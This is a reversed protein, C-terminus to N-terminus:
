PGLKLISLGPVGPCIALAKDGDVTNVGLATDSLSFVPTALLRPQYDVIDGTTTDVVAM